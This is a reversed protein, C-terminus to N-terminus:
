AQGEEFDREMQEFPEEKENRTKRRTDSRRKETPKPEHDDETKAAFIQALGKIFATNDHCTKINTQDRYLEALRLRDRYEPTELESLRNWFTLLKSLEADKIDMLEQDFRRRKEELEHEIKGIQRRANDRESLIRNKTQNLRSVEASVVQLRTEAECLDTFTTGSNAIIDLVM